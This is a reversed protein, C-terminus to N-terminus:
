EGNHGGILKNRKLTTASPDLNMGRLISSKGYKDKLEVITEQLAKEKQLKDIDSFLTYSEYKENKINGFGIHIRRIMRTRDVHEYFMNLLENSIIEYSNTMVDIKKSASVGEQNRYDDFRVTKSSYGISFGIVNTVVHKSVLELIALEVSEKFALLGEEYNYDRDLTQGQSISQSKPVYEKIEKITIPEIGKSHDILYEANVGFEKYLVKEDCKAVDEMTFLGLRNLRRSIGGGVNWFDTLPTHHWLEKKYLEETLFSIGDKTKKAMIDMAVKALYLNTGLGATAFIGTTKYVKDMVEHALEYTTKNYLKRYPKTYIFAEDISYVHIDDPSFFSLYISYIMSSYEIYKKMRPKAIIYDINKPIEFLRCRNKVGFEKMRPSIALCIAGRGRAEDAVVLATKFPDLGREVCEVSAYFCKLDICFYDLRSNVENIDIRSYDM